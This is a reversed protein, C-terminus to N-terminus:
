EAIEATWKGGNLWYTKMQILLGTYELTNLYNQVLNVLLPSGPDLAIGIPETTFPTGVEALGADPNRALMFRVYPLDSLLGDLEGKQIRPILTAPDDVAIVKAKPYADRLLAESTSGSRVGFTREASDIADDSEFVEALEKRTLLTAGSILYPGAFAVQANRAPTITMNSIVLDFDGAALGPLLEAFPREILELELDMADALALALDVDLGVLEGERDKMNLPPQAGSLGVRLRGSEVIRHVADAPESATGSTAASSAASRGASEGGPGGFGHGACGVSLAVALLSVISTSSARSRM